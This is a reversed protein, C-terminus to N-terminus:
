EDHAENLLATYIFLHYEFKKFLFIKNAYKKLFILMKTMVDGEFM